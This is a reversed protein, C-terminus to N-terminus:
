NQGVQAVDCVWSVALVCIYSVHCNSQGQKLRTSPRWGLQIKNETTDNVLSSTESLLTM